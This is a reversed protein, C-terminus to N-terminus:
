GTRCPRPDTRLLGYLAMDHYQGRRHQAGRAIGEFAFGCKALVAREAANDVDAGAELRGADTTTFLHEVLLRHALTGIGRGRFDPRLSVGINWARSATNTGYDHAYSSALGALEDSGAIADRDSVLVLRLDPLGTTAFARRIGGPSHPGFDDFESRLIPDERWAQLEEVWVETVLSLIVTM